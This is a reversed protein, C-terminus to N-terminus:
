KIQLAPYAIGNGNKWRLMIQIPTGSITTGKITHGKDISDDISAITYDDLNPTELCFTRSNTNWLLYIKGEQTTHLYQNLADQSFHAQELFSSISEHSLRKVEQYRARDEDKGSFQRSGPSGRYYADQAERMCAPSPSHIHKLYEDRDPLPTGLVKVIQTLYHDYHYEEYNMDFYQSPKAPSSWQPCDHKCSANYKFELKISPHTTTNNGIIEFDYNYKRGGKHIVQYDIDKYILTSMVGPLSYQFQNFDKLIWEDQIHNHISQALCPSISTDKCTKKLLYLLIEERIKNHLHNTARGVPITSVTTAISNM